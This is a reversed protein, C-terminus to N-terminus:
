KHILSIIKWTKEKLQGKRSHFCLGLKHPTFFNRIIEMNRSYYFWVSPYTTATLTSTRIKTSKRGSTLLILRSLMKTIKFIDLYNLFGLHINIPLKVTHRMLTVKMDLTYNLEFQVHTEVKAKHMVNDGLGNRRACHRAIIARTPLLALPAVDFSVLCCPRTSLIRVCFM